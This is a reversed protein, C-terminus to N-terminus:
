ARGAVDREVRQELRDGLVDVRDLAVACRHELAELVLVNRDAATGEVQGKREDVLPVFGLLRLSPSSRSLSLSSDLTHKPLAFCPRLSLDVRPDGRERERRRRSRAGETGM